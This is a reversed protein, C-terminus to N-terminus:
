VRTYTIKRATLTQYSRAHVAGIDDLESRVGQCVIFVLKHYMCTCTHLVWLKPILFYGLKHMWFASHANLNVFFWKALNLAQWLIQMLPSTIHMYMHMYKYMHIYYTSDYMDMYMYMYRHFSITYHTCKNQSGEIKSETCYHHPERQEGWLMWAEVRGRM